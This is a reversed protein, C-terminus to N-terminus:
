NEKIEKVLMEVNDTQVLVGNENTFMVIGIEAKGETIKDIYYVAKESVRQMTQVLIKNEKLIGVAEETTNCLALKRVVQIDETFFAANSALIEMRCDANKSHTDSIGGALKILKGIHGILLIKTFGCEIGSKITDGIFNSCKLAKDIDIDYRSKIFDLGYNGPTMLLVQGENEKKVRLEAVISDILAKRSMPEVIGSTGLISIGGEIGLRSNFTKKAIIEGDKASIVVKAGLNNEFSDIVGRVENEIMMRPVKNIAAEGIDIGLGKKTVRGVGKGGDIEVNGSDNLKVDAYVLIGDTVDPDDGSYKKVACRACGDGIEADLIDTEFKAGSPTFINISRIKSKNLAMIAAAKAAAAACSGTTFGSKLM